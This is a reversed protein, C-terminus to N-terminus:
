TMNLARSRIQVSVLYNRHSATIKARKGCLPGFASATKTPSQGSIECVRTEYTGASGDVFPPPTAEKRKSPFAHDRLLWFDLLFCFRSCNAFFVSVIFLLLM